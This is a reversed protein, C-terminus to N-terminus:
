ISIFLWFSDSVAQTEIKEKNCKDPISIQFLNSHVRYSILNPIEREDIKPSILKTHDIEAKSYANLESV